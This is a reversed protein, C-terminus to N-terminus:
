KADLIKQMISNSVTFGNKLYAQFATTNDSFVNLRFYKINNNKLDAEIEDFIFTSLGKNRYQKALWIDYLFATKMIIDLHYWVFGIPQETMKMFITFFYHGETFYGYNLTEDSEKQAIALSQRYPIKLNRKLAKAYNEVSKEKFAEFDSLAMKRLKVM